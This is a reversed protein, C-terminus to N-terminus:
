YLLCSMDTHARKNYFQLVNMNIKGTLRCVFLIGKVTESGFVDFHISQWLETKDTQKTLIISNHAATTYALPKTLELVLNVGSNEIYSFAQVLDPIHCNNDM